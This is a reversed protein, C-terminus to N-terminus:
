DPRGTRTRLSWAFLGVGVVVCTDALNFAPWSFPQIFDVVAGLRLRDLLNSLGGGLLLGAGVVGLRSREGGLLPVAVLVLAALPVWVTAGTLFGFALGRNAVHHFALPGILHVREDLQLHARVVAKTLQDLVVVAAAVLLYPVLGRVTGDPLPRETVSSSSTLRRLPKM